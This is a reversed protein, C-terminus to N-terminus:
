GNRVGNGTVVKNLAQLVQNDGSYIDPKFRIRDDDAVNVTWYMLFIPVREALDVRRTAGAAIAEDLASRNWRAPDHLLLEALQFIGEVRICGSSFARQERQFLQQHPTDHLYVSYTNPFRIAMRGLASGPGADQRLIIRGPRNWDIQDQALPRGEYDLVRIRNRALYGPDKRVAPLTDNRLITPPITWTPNLTIHTIESKFIPTRRYPSGVQVRGTWVRQANEFYWAQFGAIDVMVFRPPLERPLWRSRELNVRVQDIRAQVPVNLAALTAAGVRGDAQLYQDRQFSKVAEALTEDYVADTDAAVPKDAMALLRRRLAAVRADTAGPELTPGAPVMEWGGGAALSRLNGLATGLRRYYNSPPRAWAFVEAIKGSDAAEVAMTLVREPPMEDVSFNWHPDIRVPDVKGRVLHFLARLYARTVALEADARQAPDAKKLTGADSYARLQALQYDEPNLGDSHLAELAQILRATHGADKWAPAFQRLRYFQATYESLEAAAAPVSAVPQADIRTRLEVAVPDEAVAASTCLVWFFAWAWHGQGRARGLSFRGGGTRGGPHRRAAPGTLMAAPTM